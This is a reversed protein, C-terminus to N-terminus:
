GFFRLRTTPSRKGQRRKEAQRERRVLDTYIRKMQVLEAMSRNVISVGDVAVTQHAQKANGSLTATVADLIKENESKGDYNVLGADFLDPLVEVAGAGITVRGTDAKTAVMLWTWSGTGPETPTASFKFDAGEATATITIPDHEPNVFRVKAVWGDSAPYDGGPITFRWVDGARLRDPVYDPIPDSMGGRGSKIGGASM